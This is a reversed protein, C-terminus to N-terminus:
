TGCSPAPRRARVRAALQPVTRPGRALAARLAKRVDQQENFYEKLETSM